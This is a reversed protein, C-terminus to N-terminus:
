QGAGTEATGLLLHGILGLALLLQVLATGAAGGARLGLSTAGTMFYLGHLARAVVLGIGLAHLAFAPTGIGEALAMLILALPVTEVANGHARVAHFVRQNGGDGIPVGEASRARGVRVALFLIWLTLLAAYVATIPLPM